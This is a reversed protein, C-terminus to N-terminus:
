DEHPIIFDIADIPIIYQTDYNKTYYIRNVSTDGQLVDKLVRHGCYGLYYGVDVTNEDKNESETIEEFMEDTWHLHENDIDIHYYSYTYNYYVNTITAIKGKYQEMKSTFSSAGYMNGVVLDERIKVKDGVKYKM